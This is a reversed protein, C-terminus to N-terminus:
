QEVEVTTAKDIAPRAIDAAQGLGEFVGEAYVGEESLLKQGMKVALDDHKKVIIQLAALMDDAALHLARQRAAERAAAEKAPREAEERKEREEFRRLSEELDRRREKFPFPVGSTRRHYWGRGQYSEWTDGYGMRKRVANLRECLEEATLHTYENHAM